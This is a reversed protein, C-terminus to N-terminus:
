RREWSARIREREGRLEDREEVEGVGSLVAAMSATREARTGRHAGEGGGRGRGGGRGWGLGQKGREMGRGAM